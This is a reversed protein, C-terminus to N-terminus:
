LKGHSTLFLALWNSKCDALVVSSAELDISFVPCCCCCCCGGGTGCHGGGEEKAFAGVFATWSSSSSLWYQAGHSRFNCSSINLFIDSDFFVLSPEDPEGLAVSFSVFLTTFLLWFSEKIPLPCFLVLKVFELRV